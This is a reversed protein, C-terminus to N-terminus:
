RSGAPLLAQAEHALAQTSVAVRPTKVWHDRRLAIRALACVTAPISWAYGYFTFVLFVGPLAWLPVRTSVASRYTFAVFAIPLVTMALVVASYVYDNAIFAYTEARVSLLGTYNGITMALLTSFVVVFVVALLYFVADLRRALPARRATLLPGAHQWCTYHGQIWRARQRFLPRVRTLGQQAVCARPCFRIKWGKGILSMTLDLDETLCRTWPADGMERLASLRVFQGNGGLGVSGLVDRGAQVLRSFGLFEIDQMLALFNDSANWMRVPLQVGAVNPQAFYPAVEALAHPELWGDADVVCVIVGDADAGGLRRDGTRVMENILRAAHNLVDGKGRGAIAAPRDVVVIREDGAAAKRAVESTLDESGDNMVLALFPEDRLERLRRVTQEIVLEENHAPVVIIFRYQGRDHAGPKLGRNTRLSLLFFALYYLVMGAGLYSLATAISTLNM